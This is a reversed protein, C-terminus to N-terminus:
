MIFALNGGDENIECAADAPRVFRRWLQRFYGTGEITFPRVKGFLARSLLRVDRRARGVRNEEVSVAEEVEVCCAVQSIDNGRQRILETDGVIHDLVFGKENPTRTWGIGSIHLFRHIQSRQEFFAQNLQHAQFMRCLLDAKNVQGSIKVIALCYGARKGKAATPGDCGVITLGPTYKPM